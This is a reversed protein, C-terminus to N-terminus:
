IRIEHKIVKAVTAVYITWAGSSSPGLSYNVQVLGDSAYDVGTVSYWSNLDAKGTFTTGYGGLGVYQSSSQAVYGSLRPKVTFDL